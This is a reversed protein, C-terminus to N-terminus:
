LEHMSPDCVVLFVAETEAVLCPDTCYFNVATITIKLSLKTLTLTLALTMRGLTM